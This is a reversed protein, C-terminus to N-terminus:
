LVGRKQGIRDSPPSSNHIDHRKALARARERMCLAAVDNGGTHHAPGLFVLIERGQCSWCSSEM